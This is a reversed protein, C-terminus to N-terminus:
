RRRRRRCPQRNRSDARRAERALQECLGHARARDRAELFIRSQARCWDMGVARRIAAQLHTQACVRHLRSQEVAPTNLWLAVHGDGHHNLAFVAFVRARARGSTPRGTRSSNRSRRSVRPLARAGGASHIGEQEAMASRSSKRTTDRASISCWCRGSISSRSQPPLTSRFTARTRRRHERHRRPVRLLEEVRGIIKSTMDLVSTYPSAALQIRATLSSGGEAPEEARAFYNLMIVDGENIAGAIPSSAQVDWPNAARPRRSASHTTARCPPRSTNRRPNRRSSIGPATPKRTSRTSERHRRRRNGVFM